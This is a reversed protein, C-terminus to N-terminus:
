KGSGEITRKNQKGFTSFTVENDKIHSLYPWAPISGLIGARQGGPHRARGVWKARAVIKLQSPLNKLWAVLVM